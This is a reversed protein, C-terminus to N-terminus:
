GAKKGPLIKDVAREVIAAGGFASIVVIGQVLLTPTGAQTGTLFSFWGATWGGMMNAAVFIKPHMIGPAGPELHKSMRHLTGALGGLSSSVFTVLYALNPIAEFESAISANVAWVWCPWMVGLLLVLNRLLKLEILM